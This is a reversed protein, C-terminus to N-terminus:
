HGGEITLRMSKGCIQCTVKKVGDQTCTAEKEVVGKDFECTHTNGGGDGGITGGTDNEGCASFAAASFVTLASLLIAAARKAATQSKKM